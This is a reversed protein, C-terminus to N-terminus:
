VWGRPSACRRREAVRRRPDGFLPPASGGRESCCFNLRPKKLVPILWKAQREATERIDRPLDRHDLFAGARFLIQAIGLHGRHIAANIVRYGDNRKKQRHDDSRRFANADAGAALLLEVIREHGRISAWFLASAADAATQNPDVGLTLLLQVLETHGHYAARMLPRFGDKHLYCISAGRELLEPLRRVDGCRTARVMLKDVLHSM